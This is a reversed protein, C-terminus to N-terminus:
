KKLKKFLMNKMKLLVDRYLWLYVLTIVALLTLQWLFSLLYSGALAAAMCLATLAIEKGNYTIKVVKATLVYRIVFIAFYATLTSISAAYLGVFRVLILDVALNVAAAAASTWGLESSRHLGVYIGGYFQAMCLFFLGLLLIPIHDFAEAYGPHARINILLPFVPQRLLLIVIVGFSIVALLSRFVGSYFEELGDEEQERSASEMWAMQFVSYVSTILGPIKGAAAFVGNAASGLFVNIVLKDSANLVWWSVNNLIMPGSYRLMRLLKDLQLGRPHILSGCKASVLLYVISVASAILYGLVYGYFGLSFGRIFLSALGMLAFAYLISSVTYTRNRGEGRVIQQAMVYIAHLDIAAVYLLLDYQKRLVFWATAALTGVLLVACLFVVGSSVTGRKQELTKDDILFRFVAQELQLTAIPVVLSVVTLFVDVEGYEAESMWTTLFPLMIFNILKTGIIGVLLILTNGILRSQKSM